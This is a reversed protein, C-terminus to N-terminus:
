GSVATQCELAWLAHERVMPSMHELRAHLAAVINADAPANGLSVCLNRLWCDYGIRRIASGETNRLFTPEDWSFLELLSSTDLGNRPLFDPETTIRAFRNWPCVAQCDDCGFIRNGIMPRFELPISSRLEITLYSICRRADLRYPGTIAQTPCVDICASCDGCHNSAPSDTVLPLDTYIEGILFWSGQSKNILNTHKGIWGLGSKEALAKELVPASDVFARYGFFGAEDSIRSALKQLRKRMLKHYDRGLAYRAIYAQVPNQLVRESQEAQEPFYNMRVSIIRRTGEVLLQPRSRKLGHRAMYEMEGHCGRNLWDCLHAEAQELRTDTIGVQDFGLERGWQKIQSSLAPMSDPSFDATEHM